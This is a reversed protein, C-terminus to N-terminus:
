VGIWAPSAEQLRHPRQRAVAVSMRRGWSHRPSREGRCKRRGPLLCGWLGVDCFVSRQRERFTVGWFNFDVRHFRKGDRWITFQELDTVPKGTGTDLLTTRTSFGADAYSHGQEFVTVAAWRGDPSLRARSPPGTLPIAFLPEFRENFIRATYSPVPTLEAVLCVGRGGAFHVRACALDTIYRAGDASALSALAIRGWTRGPILSQFFIFPRDPPSTLVREAQVLSSQEDAEKNLIARAMAAGVAAAALVSVTGFIWLRRRDRTQGEVPLGKVGRRQGPTLQRFALALAACLGLTFLVLATEHGWRTWAFGFVLSALVRALNTATAIVALGTGLLGVPLRASALAALVGDTAAYYAGLLVVCVVPAVAGLSRAVLLWVSRAPIYPRRSVHPGRRHPRCRDGHPAALMFYVLPTGVYLLSILRSDFGSTQQLASICSRM